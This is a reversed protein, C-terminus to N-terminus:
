GDCTSVAWQTRATDARPPWTAFAKVENACADETAKAADHARKARALSSEISAVIDALADTNRRADALRNVATNLASM